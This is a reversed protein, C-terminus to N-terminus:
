QITIITEIFHVTTPHSGAPSPDRVPVSCPCPWKPWGRGRRWPWKPSHQTTASPVILVFQALYICMCNNQMGKRPCVAAGWWVPWYVQIQIQGCWYVEGCCEPVQVPCPHLAARGRYSPPNHTDDAMTEPPLWQWRGTHCSPRNCFQKLYCCM